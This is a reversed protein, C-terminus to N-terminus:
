YRKQHKYRYLANVVFLKLLLIFLMCQHNHQSYEFHFPIKIVIKCAKWDIQQPCFLIHEYTKRVLYPFFSVSPVIFLKRKNNNSNNNSNNNNNNNNSSSSSISSSSEVIKVTNWM